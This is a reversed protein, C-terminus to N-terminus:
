LMEIKVEESFVEGGTGFSTELTTKVWGERKEFLLDLIISVTGPLEGYFSFKKVCMFTLKFRAGNRKQLRSPGDETQIVMEIRDEAILISEITDDHFDPVFGFRKELEEMGQVLM